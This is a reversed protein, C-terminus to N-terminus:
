AISERGEHAVFIFSDETQVHSFHRSLNLTLCLRSEWSFGGFCRDPFVRRGRSAAWRTGLVSLGGSGRTSPPFGATQHIQAPALFLTRCTTIRSLPLGVHRLYAEGFTAGTVVCCSRSDDRCSFPVSAPLTMWYKAVCSPRVHLAEQV